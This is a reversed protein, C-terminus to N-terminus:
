TLKIEFLEEANKATIKEVDKINMEKVDAIKEAVYSVNMPENRDDRMLPRPTLYPCDTEILIDEIPTDRLVKDYSESYTTIGNFGLKFGLERFLRATKYSGIFSHVVGKKKVPKKELIELIDPYSDWGHIILPKEIENALDVFKEFVQKQIKKMKETDDGEEFHHYDLGVEGIAVVKEHEALKLYADYDFAEIREGESNFNQMEQEMNWSGHDINLPHLGVAAWVGSEYKRAYEVARKSTRMESGVNIMQTDHELSKKIVNHGDDKFAKMNVHAHSDFM